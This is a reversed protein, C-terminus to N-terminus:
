SLFSKWKKFSYIVKMGQPCINLATMEDEPRMGILDRIDLSCSNRLIYIKQLIRTIQFLDLVKVEMQQFQKGKKKKEKEKWFEKQGTYSKVSELFALLVTVWVMSMHALITWQNSPKSKQLLVKKKKKIWLFLGPKVKPWFSLTSSYMEKLPLLFDFPDRM